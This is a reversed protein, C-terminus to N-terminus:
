PYFEIHTRHFESWGHPVAQERGGYGTSSPRSRGKTPSPNPLPTMAFENRAIGGERDRGWLPPPFSLLPALTSASIM